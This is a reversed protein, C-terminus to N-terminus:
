GTYRSLESFFATGTQAEPQGDAQTRAEARNARLAVFVTIAGLVVVLVPFVIKCNSVLIDRITKWKDKRMNVGEEFVYFRM